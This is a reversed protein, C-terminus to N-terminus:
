AAIDQHRSQMTQSLLESLEKLESVALGQIGYPDSEVEHLRQAIAAELNQLELTEHGNFKSFITQVALSPKTNEAKEVPEINDASNVTQDSKSEKSKRSAKLERIKKPEPILEDHSSKSDEWIEDRCKEDVDAIANLAKITEATVEISNQYAFLAAACYRYFTSKSILSGLKKEHFEKADKCDVESFGGTGELLYLKKVMKLPRGKADHIYKCDQIIGEVYRQADSQVAENVHQSEDSGNPQNFYERVHSDQNCNQVGVDAAEDISLEIM